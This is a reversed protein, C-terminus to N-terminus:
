GWRAEKCSPCVTHVVQLPQEITQNHEFIEPTQWFGLKPNKLSNCFSCRLILHPLSTKGQSATMDQIYLPKKFPEEKLLGHQMKVLGTSFPQLPILDMQMFRQHTPSDCRYPKSLPQRKLRCLKLATEVAMWTIDSQIFDKLPLGLIKNAQLSDGAGGQVALPEWSNSVNIICNQADVVLSLYQESDADLRKITM